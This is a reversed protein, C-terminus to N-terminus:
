ERGGEREEEGGEEKGDWKEEAANLPRIVCYPLDVLPSVKQSM